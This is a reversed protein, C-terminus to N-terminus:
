DATSWITTTVEEGCTRRAAGIEEMDAILSKVRENLEEPTM